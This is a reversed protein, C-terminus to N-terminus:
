SAPGGPQELGLAAVRADRSVAAVEAPVSAVRVNAAFGMPEGLPRFFDDYHSPIVVRPDLKPLIRSWYRPTFSRGAVGALFVDVGRHRMADDVLDASGQHYFTMGGVSVHIGWVQGCRYASPALGDLHACTLEGDYPIRLGLLLKSHASPVFTVEFPGAQYVRYPTAEVAQEGLGHLRMLAALSASGYVPCGHMRAIAPADVAHDFHTHGIAVATVQEAAPVHREILELDPLAPLRRVVHRFPVRSFYPDLLLTHGEFTIRYGAVGLWEVGVGPALGLAGPEVELEGLAARDEREHSGRRARYVALDAAHRFAGIM